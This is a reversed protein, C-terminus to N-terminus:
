MVTSRTIIIIGTIGTHIHIIAVTTIEGVTSVGTIHKGVETGINILESIM